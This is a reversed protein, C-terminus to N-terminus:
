RDSITLKANIEALTAKPMKTGDYKPHRVMEVKIGSYPIQKLLAEPVGTVVIDPRYVLKGDVFREVAIFPKSVFGTRVEVRAMEMVAVPLGLEKNLEEVSRWGLVTLVRQEMFDKLKIEKKTLKEVQKEM